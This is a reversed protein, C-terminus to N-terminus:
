DKIYKMFHDIDYIKTICKEIDNILVKKQRKLVTKDKTRIKEDQMGVNIQHIKNTKDIVEQYNTFQEKDSFDIKRIPLRNLVYTGRSYFNGEFDSGMVSSLWALAPHNLVAHIYELAYPSEDEVTIACYGATGGSAIVMDNKDLLNLPNSIHTNVGIILKPTNNFLKFAQNRGYHYWTEKTAHPVDRGKGDDSFQKPLLIDYCDCLYEWTYPFSGKM